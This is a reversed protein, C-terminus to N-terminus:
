RVKYVLSDPGGYTTDSSGGTQYSTIYVQKLKITGGTIKAVDDETLKRAVDAQLDGIQIRNKKM